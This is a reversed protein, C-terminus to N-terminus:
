LLPNFHNLYVLCTSGEPPAYYGSAPGSYRAIGTVSEYFYVETTEPSIQYVVFTIKHCVALIGCLSKLDFWHVEGATCDFNINEEWIKYLWHNNSCTRRTPLYSYKEFSRGQLNVIM